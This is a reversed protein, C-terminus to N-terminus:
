PVFQMGSVLWRDEERTLDVKFRYHSPRGEPPTESNKVTAKVAVLAQAEGESLESLGAEQVVGKSSVEGKKVVQAFTQQVGRFQRKFDGTADELMSKMQKDINKSDISVMNVSQQRAVELAEQRLRDQARGDFWQVTFVAGLALLGVTLVSLVVLAATVKGSRRPAASGAAEEDDSGSDDEDSASVEQADLESPAADEAPDEDPAPEARPRPSPRRGAAGVDDSRTDDTGGNQPEARATKEVEEAKGHNESEGASLPDRDGGAPPDATEHVAAGNGASDDDASSEDPREAPGPDAGDASGTRRSFLLKM